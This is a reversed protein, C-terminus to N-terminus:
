SGEKVQPQSDASNKTERLDTLIKRTFKQAERRKDKLRNLKRRAADIEKDISAKIHEEEEQAKLAEIKESLSRCLSEAETIRVPLNDLEAQAEELEKRAAEVRAVTREFIVGSRANQIFAREADLRERLTRIAGARVGEVRQRLRKM